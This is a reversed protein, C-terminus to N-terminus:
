YGCDSIKKCKCILKIKERKKYGCEDYYKDGDWGCDKIEKCKCILKKDDNRKKCGFDDYDDYDDYYDDKFKNDPMRYETCLEWDYDYGYDDVKKCFCKFNKSDKKFM